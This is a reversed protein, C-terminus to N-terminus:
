KKLTILFVYFIELLQSIQKLYKIIKNKHHFTKSIKSIRFLNKYIQQHNLALTIAYQFCRNDSYKTSENHMKKIKVM